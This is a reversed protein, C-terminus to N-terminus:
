RFRALRIRSVVRRNMSPISAVGPKSTQPLGSALTKAQYPTLKHLEVLQDALEKASTALESSDLTAQVKAADDPSLIGNEALQTLIPQSAQSM